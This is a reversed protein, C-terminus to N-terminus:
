KYKQTKNNKKTQIIRGGSIDVRVSVSKGSVASKRDALASRRSACALSRRPPQDYRSSGIASHSVPLSRRLTAFLRYCRQAHSQGARGSCADALRCDLELRRTLVTEAVGLRAAM